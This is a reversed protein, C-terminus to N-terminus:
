LKKALKRREHRTLKRVVPRCICPGTGLLLPCWASHVVMVHHVGPTSQETLDAANKLLEAVYPQNAYRFPNTKDTM